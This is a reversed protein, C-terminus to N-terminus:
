EEMKYRDFIVYKELDGELPVKSSIAFEAAENIIEKVENEIAEYNLDPIKMTINRLPDRNKKVTEVEERSRYTAPDSMSHGRYRYTDVHLITPGQGSRTHRIAEMSKKMVDFLDMGDAQICPIRFSTGRTTIDGAIARSAATGLAYRNNEIIYVAPLKWLSAMNFSEYVQGQNVAGDGFYIVSVGGDERYKHALALGTGIPVQAGVIGNGGYFNHVRSYMHMSGGRGKSCGTIKGCLEAMVYKPDVGIALMHGHDRYSTIQSDIRTDLNSNIGVVVAEQGTYLHCFGYIHGETYMAAARDEFLRILLMQKYLFEVNNVKTAGSTHRLKAAANDCGIALDGIALNMPLEFIESDREACKEPTDQAGPNDLAIRGKGVKIKNVKAKEFFAVRAVFSERL